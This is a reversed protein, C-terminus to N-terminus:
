TDVCSRLLKLIIVSAHYRTIGHLLMVETKVEDLFDAETWHLDHMKEM